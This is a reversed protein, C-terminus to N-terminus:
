GLPSSKWIFYYLDRKFGPRAGPKNILLLEISILIFVILM